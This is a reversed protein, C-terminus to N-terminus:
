FSENKINSLISSLMYFWEVIHKAKPEKVLIDRCSDKERPHITYNRSCIIAMINQEIDVQQLNTKYNVINLIKNRTSNDENNDIGKKTDKWLAEKYKDLIYYDNLLEISKFIALMAYVFTNPVNSNLIEFVFQINKRLEFIIQQNENSLKNINQLFQQRLIDEELKWIKKLYNKDIGKKILTDLKKFSNKSTEYRDTPADKKVYGLIGKNHLEDLILSDGSATFMIIQIGPNIKKIEGIIQIGSLKNISKKKNIKLTNDSELLRLDLLVVDPQTDYVKKQVHDKIDEITKDKYTYELVDLQVETYQQDVFSKLIDKWGDNWKDDILLVSGQKDTQKTKNKLKRQLQYKAILYKFYLMSSIKDSNKKITDSSTELLNSWQYISWENTISHHTLYDKPAEIHVLDLFEKGYDQENLYPLTNTAISKITEINNKVIFINKTFLINAESTIKGLLYGDLDSLIIIPVFRKDQLEQSLRIHYALRLGYLELYNSSLSDKICIVDFEKNKIEQIIENTIYADVGSSNVKFSIRNPFSELSPVNNHHILLINHM